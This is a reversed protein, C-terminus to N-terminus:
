GVCSALPPFARAAADSPPAHSRDLGHEVRYRKSCAASLAGFPLSGRQLRFNAYKRISFSPTEALSAKCWHVGSSRSKRFLPSFGIENGNEDILRTRLGYLAPIDPGTQELADIARSLKDAEWVDDQDCFAHYETVLNEGCAQFLLNAPPGRRPSDIIEVKGPEFRKQFALLISKTRDSSGDDSAILKWNKFTERELSTLQEALFREGNLTCFLIAVGPASRRHRAGVIECIPLADDRALLSTESM